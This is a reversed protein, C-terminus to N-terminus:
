LNRGIIAAARTIAERSADDVGRVFHLVQVVGNPYRVDTNVGTICITFNLKNALRLADGDNERPNWKHPSPREESMVMLGGDTLRNSIRFGAAKAAFELDEKSIM